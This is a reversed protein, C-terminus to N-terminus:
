TEPEPPGRALRPLVTWLPLVGADIPIDLMLSQLELPWQGGKGPPEGRMDRGHVEHGPQLDDAEALERVEDISALHRILTITQRDEPEEDERPEEGDGFFAHNERSYNWTKTGRPILRGALQRTKTVEGVVDPISFTDKAVYSAVDEADRVPELWFMSAGWGADIAWGKLLQRLKPFRCRRPPRRGRSGAAKWAAERAQYAARDKALLAVLEDFTGCGAEEVARRTLEESVMLPHLHAFGSSHAETRAVYRVDIENRRMRKILVALNLRCRRWSLMRAARWSVRYTAMLQKPSLTLTLFWGSRGQEEHWDLSKAIPEQRALGKRKSCHRCRESGCTYRWFRHQLESGVRVVGEWTSAGCAARQQNGLRHADFELALGLLSPWFRGPSLLGQGDGLLDRLWTLDQGLSVLGAEAVEEGDSARLQAYVDRLFGWAWAVDSPVKGEPYCLRGVRDTAGRWGAPVDELLESWPVPKKRPADRQEGHEDQYVAVREGVGLAKGQHVHHMTPWPQVLPPANPTEQPNESGATCVGSVDVLQPEATRVFAMGSWSPSLSSLGSPPAGAEVALAAGRPTM